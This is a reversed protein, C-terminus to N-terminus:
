LTQGHGAETRFEKPTKQYKRRFCVSFYNPDDIGVAAAIEYNKMQTTLLLIKARELRLGLLYDRFNEGFCRKFLTSLYSLSYGLEAAMASLTFGSDALHVELTEAMQTRVSQSGDAGADGALKGVAQRVAAFSDTEKKKEVLHFLLKQVDDRSLPKLAYDDVGIKIARIAYDLYDYGTLIAIKLSPDKEKALRCFDLGNMKPMNIDALILDIHHQNLVELASEGNEAEYFGSIGLGDFDIFARIGRRILSEDEVVLLNYM